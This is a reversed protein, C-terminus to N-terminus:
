WYKTQASYPHRTMNPIGCEESARMFILWMSFSWLPESIIGDGFLLRSSYIVTSHTIHNLGRSVLHESHWYRPFFLMSDYYWFHRLNKASFLSTKWFPLSGCAECQEVVGHCSFILHISSMNIGKRRKQKVQLTAFM